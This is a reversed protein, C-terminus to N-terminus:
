RKYTCWHIGYGSQQYLCEWGVVDGAPISIKEVRFSFISDTLYDIGPSSQFSSHIAFYHRLHLFQHQPSSFLYVSGSVRFGLCEYGLGNSRRGRICRLVRAEKGMRVKGHLGGNAITHLHIEPYFGDKTLYRTRYHVISLRSLSPTHTHTHVDPWKRVGQMCAQTRSHIQLVYSIRYITTTTIVRGYTTM